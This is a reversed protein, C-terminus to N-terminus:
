ILNTTGVAIQNYNNFWTVTSENLKLGSNLDNRVILYVRNLIYKKVVNFIKPNSGWLEVEETEKNFWVYRLKFKSTVNKFYYGEKGILRKIIGEEFKLGFMYFHCDFPPKDDKNESTFICPQM